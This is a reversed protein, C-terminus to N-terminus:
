FVATHLGCVEGNPFYANESTCTQCVATLKNAYPTIEREYACTYLLKRIASAHMHVNYM